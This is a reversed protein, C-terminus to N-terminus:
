TAEKTLRDLLPEPKEGFKASPRRIRRLESRWVGGHSRASDAAVKEAHEPDTTTWVLSLNETLGGHRAVYKRVTRGSPFYLRRFVVYVPLETM